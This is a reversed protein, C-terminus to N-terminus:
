SFLNDAGVGAGTSIKSKDNLLGFYMTGNQSAFIIREADEQPLSLTMIARPLTEKNSSETAPTVTTPGVAIVQAKPLLVRTKPLENPKPTATLFVVVESGPQVFGAVRGTDTMQVSVAIHGPAIPLETTAKAVEPKAGFKAALIQEGPYVNNLTVKDKVPAIDGLAGPAVASGPVTQLQLAGAAAAASASTGPAIATKAVLVRVPATQALARDNVSSVYIFIMSTGLAAVVLATVILVIRRNM